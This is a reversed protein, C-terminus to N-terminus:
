AWRTPRALSRGRSRDARGRRAGSRRSGRGRRCLPRARAPQRAGVPVPLVGAGRGDGRHAGARAPLRAPRRAGGGTGIDTARARAADAAHDDQRRREPRPLRVGRRPARGPRPRRRGRDLRRLAQDAGADRDRSRRPRECAGAPKPTMGNAGHTRAPRAGLRPCAFAAIAALARVINWAVWPGAFDDRVAALNEIRAPDGANKLDENLPLHIAVTVVVM